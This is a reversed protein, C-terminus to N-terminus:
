HHDPAEGLNVAISRGGAYRLTVSQAAEPVRFVLVGTLASGSPVLGGGLDARLPTVASFGPGSVTFQDSSAEIGDAGRGILSVLLTFTRQGEPTADPVMATMTMGLRAFQGHNMPDLHEPIAEDVRLLGGPISVEDGISAAWIVGGNGAAQRLNLGLGLLALLGILVAITLTTGRTRPSRAATLARTAL